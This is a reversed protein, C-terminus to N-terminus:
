GLAAAIAADEHGGTLGLFLDELSTTAGRRLEDMTGSAVVRGRDVIAIRDCMREAIEMIHTTLFVAAGRAAMERLIDKVLRAGHPDLGVTPEDLFLVKPQHLLAGAITTKQRMGHSYGDVLDDAQDALDFVRLWEEARRRAEAPPVRYLGGVYDLYERASMRAPLAPEAPVYGLLRKAPRPERQIDFGGIRAHGATPRLVGILMKITTTKGAGNPGLFGFLEGPYVQLSIGNVAQKQGFSRHLDIAEILPAARAM